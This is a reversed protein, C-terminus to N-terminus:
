YNPPETVFFFDDELSIGSTRKPICTPQLNFSWILCNNENFGVERVGVPLHSPSNGNREKKQPSFDYDLIIGIRAELSGFPPLLPAPEGYQVELRLSADKLISDLDLLCRYHDAVTCEGAFPLSLLNCNPNSLIAIEFVKEIDHGRPRHFVLPSRTGLSQNLQVSRVKSYMQIEADTSCLLEGRYVAKESGGLRIGQLLPSVVNLGTTALQHGGIFRQLQPLPLSQFCLCMLMEVLNNILDWSEKMSEELQLQWLRIFNMQRLNSRSAIWYVLSDAQRLHFAKVHEHLRRSLQNSQGVYPRWYFEMDESTIYM